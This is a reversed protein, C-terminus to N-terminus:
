RPAGSAWWADPGPTRAARPRGWISRTAVPEPEAPRDGTGASGKSVTLATLVALVVAVEEDDTLGGDVGVQEVHIVVEDDTGTATM